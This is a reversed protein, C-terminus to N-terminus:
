LVGVVISKIKIKEKIADEVSTKSKTSFKNIKVDEKEHTRRLEM